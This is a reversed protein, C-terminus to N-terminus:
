KGKDKPKDKTQITNEKLWEAVQNGDFWRQGAKGGIRFARPFHGSDSWRRIQNSSIGTQKVLQRISLLNAEPLETMFVRGYTASLTKAAPANVSSYLSHLRDFGQGIGTAISIPCM